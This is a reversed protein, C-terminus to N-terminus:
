IESASQFICQSVALLGLCLKQMCGTEVLVSLDACFQAFNM